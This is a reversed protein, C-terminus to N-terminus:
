RCRKLFEILMLYIRETSSISLRERTTHIEFNDPGFSVCDLEDIKGSLIGCELGAHIAEFIPEKGFLETYVESIVERVKSDSRYEWAPYDGSVSTEGGLLEATMKIRDYVDSKRTSVSSRISTTINFSDDTLKVIGANLSTEVLGPIITSMNIVGNAVTRLYFIVKTFSGADLIDAEAADLSKVKVTLDPDSNNFEKKLIAEQSDLVSQVTDELGEEVIICAKTERPIANDKLGGAFECLGYPIEDRLAKLIRGMLINSNGREKNIESGSHGGSLGDITIEYKIGAVSTRAVPITTNVTMGGACSTLFHGEEDSDINLMKHGKLMSLDIDTAGLMGIEEDVTIVVELRPHVISPTDIIALAYAVAIGDDGGLTTGRAKLFDGDVYISLGDNEFDIDVGSEKECVMDMHGQIIIPDADEYGASAEQIMVVNGMNDRYHELSHEKAFDVLYNSIKDTNRSGHPISCIEEFYDFVRESVLNRDSIEKLSSM